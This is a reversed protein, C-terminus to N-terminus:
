HGSDRSRHDPRKRKARPSKVATSTDTRSRSRKTWARMYMYEDECVCNRGAVGFIHCMKDKTLWHTHGLAALLGDRLQRYLSELAGQDGIIAIHAAMATTSAIVEGLVHRRTSINRQMLLSERARYLLLAAGGGELQM